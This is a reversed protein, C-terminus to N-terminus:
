NCILSGCFSLSKNAFPNIVDFSIQKVGKKNDIFNINNESAFNIQHMMMLFIILSYQIFVKMISNVEIALIIQNLAMQVHGSM